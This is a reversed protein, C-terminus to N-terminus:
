GVRRPREMRDCADLFAALATTYRSLGAPPSPPAGDELTERPDVWVPRAAERLELAAKELATM